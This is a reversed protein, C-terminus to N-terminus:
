LRVLGQTPKSDAKAAVTFGYAREHGDTLVNLSFTWSIEGSGPFKSRWVKSKFVNYVRILLLLAYSTALLIGFAAVFGMIINIALQYDKCKPHPPAWKKTRWDYIGRCASLPMFDIWWVSCVITGVLFVVDSAFSLLAPLPACLIIIATIASAIYWKMVAGDTHNRWTSFPAVDLLILIAIILIIIFTSLILGAVRIIKAYRHLRLSLRANTPPLDSDSVTSANNESMLPAYEPSTSPM